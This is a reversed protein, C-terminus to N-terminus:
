HKTKSLILPFFCNEVFSQIVAQFILCRFMSITAGSLDSFLPFAGSHIPSYSLLSPGFLDVQQRSRCLIGFAISIWAEVDKGGCLIPWLGDKPCNPGTGTLAMVM